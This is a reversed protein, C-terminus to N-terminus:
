LEDELTKKGDDSPEATDRFFVGGMIKFQTEKTAKETASIELQGQFPCNEWNNYSYEYFKSMKLRKETNEHILEFIDGGFFADGDEKNLCKLIWNDDSILFYRVIMVKVKEEM